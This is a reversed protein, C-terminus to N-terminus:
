VIKSSKYIFNPSKQRFKPCREVHAIDDAATKEEGLLLLLLLTHLAETHLQGGEQPHEPRLVTLKEAHCGVGDRRAGLLSRPM